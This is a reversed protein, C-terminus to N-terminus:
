IDCYSIFERYTMHTANDCEFWDDFMNTVEGIFYFRVGTYACMIKIIEEHWGPRGVPTDKNYGLLFIEQHGDFAALYVITSLDLLRPNYPILYFKEPYTICNAGTTYIVNNDSYGSDIFNKLFGVKTEVVFDLRMDLGITGVGYTQLKKSGLLGGRHHQLRTHDFWHRDAGSGICAARGSIHHNEIPNSVWERIQEKKGGAWRTELVVFEGAYDARYQAQIM